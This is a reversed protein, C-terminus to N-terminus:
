LAKVKEVGYASTDISGVMALTEAKQVDRYHKGEARATRDKEFARSPRIKTKQVEAKGKIRVGSKKSIERMGGVKRIDNQTVWTQTIIQVYAPLHDIKLDEKLKLIREIVDKETKKEGLKKREKKDIAARPKGCMPFGTMKAINSLGGLRMLQSSSIRRDKLQRASPLTDLGLERKCDLIAKLIETDTKKKM